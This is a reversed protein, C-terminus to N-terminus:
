KVLWSGLATQQVTVTENTLHTGCFILDTHVGDIDGVCSRDGKWLITTNTTAGTPVFSLLLLAVVFVLLCPAAIIPIWESDM